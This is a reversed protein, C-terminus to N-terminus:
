IAHHPGQPLGAPGVRERRIAFAVTRSMDPAGNEGLTLYVSSPVDGDLSEHRIDGVVGIVERWPGSPVMSLRKGIAAEPSGWERRAFGASVIAVPRPELHDAWECTRGAIVPRGCTELFGPSVVSRFLTTYPS